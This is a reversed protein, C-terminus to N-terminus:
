FDHGLQPDAWDSLRVENTYARLILTEKLTRQAAGQFLSRSAANSWAITSPLGRQGAEFRAAELLTSATAAQARFHLIRLADRASSSAWVIWSSGIRAGIPRPGDQPFALRARELRWDLMQPTLLIDFAGALPPDTWDNLDYINQVGSPALELAPWISKALPASEPDVESAIKISAELIAYILTYGEGALKRSIAGAIYRSYGKRHAPAVFASGIVAGRSLEIEHSTHRRVIVDLTEFMAIIQGAKELYWLRLGQKSFPHDWLASQIHAYQEAEMGDGLERAALRDLERVFEPRQELDRCHVFDLRMRDFATSERRM